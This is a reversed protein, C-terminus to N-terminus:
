RYYAERVLREAFYAAEGELFRQSDELFYRRVRRCIHGFGVGGSSEDSPFADKFLRRVMGKYGFFRCRGGCRFYLLVVLTKVLDGFAKHRPGAAVHGDEAADEPLGMRIVQIDESKFVTYMGAASLLAGALDLPRYLGREMLSFLETDRLVLTPYIRAASIGTKALAKADDVSSYARQAYMGTMLQVGCPVASLVREVARFVDKGGYPRGNLALVRDDLSQVGLEVFTVRSNKIESILDDTITDPRTSFRVGKIGYAEALGYLEKRVGPPLAGFNGGYFALEEWHPAFGKWKEIQCAASSLVDEREATRTIARQDCFVCRNGCAAFPFFVPLIGAM